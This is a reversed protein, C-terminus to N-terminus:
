AVWVSDCSSLAVHCIGYFSRWGPARIRNAGRAETTEKLRDFLSAKERVFVLNMKPEPVDWKQMVKSTMELEELAKRSEPNSELMKEIEKREDDPLEGYFYDILKEQSIKSKM